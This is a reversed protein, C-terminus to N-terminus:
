NKNGEVGTNKPHFNQLGVFLIVVDFSVLNADLHFATPLHGSNYQEAPRCDVVFYHVGSNTPQNAQLLETVSVPLCLAQSVQLSDEKQAALTQGFLPM